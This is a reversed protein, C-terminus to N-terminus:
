RARRGRWWRPLISALVAGLGMSLLILWILRTRVTFFVFNVDSKDSNVLLFLVAYLALVGWLILKWRPIGGEDRAPEM